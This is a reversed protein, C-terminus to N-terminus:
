FYIDNSHELTTHKKWSVIKNEDFYYNSNRTGFGTIIYCLAQVRKSFATNSFPVCLVSHVSFLYLQAIVSRVIWTLYM